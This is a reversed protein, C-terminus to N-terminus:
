IKESNGYKIQRGTIIATRYRLHKSFRGQTPTKGSFAPCSLNIKKLIFIWILHNPRHQLNYKDSSLFLIKHYFYFVTNSPTLGAIIASGWDDHPSADGAGSHNIAEDLTRKGRICTKGVERKKDPPHMKVWSSFPFSHNSSKKLPIFFYHPMTSSISSFGKLYPTQRFM